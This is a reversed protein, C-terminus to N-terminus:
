RSSRNGTSWRQRPDRRRHRRRVHLRAADLRRRVGPDAPRRAHAARVQSDGPGSAAAARLGHLLAAGRVPHRLPPQLRPRAARREGQHQRVPQDAAPATTKVGPCTRTSGTSAPRPPSCSSRFRRAGAGARAPQQTGKVNVDQYGFPDLLRSGCARRAGGPPRDRTYNAACGTRADRGSGPHGGRVPSIRHPPPAGRHETGQRCASLVSRFQGGGDGALRRRASPRRSPQRHFGAAGTVLAHRM